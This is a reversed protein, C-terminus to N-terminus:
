HIMLRGPLVSFPSSSFIPATPVSGHLEVMEGTDFVDLGDLAVSQLRPATVVTRAHHAQQTGHHEQAVRRGSLFVSQSRAITLSREGSRGMRLLRQSPDSLLSGSARNVTRRDDLSRLSFFYPGHSRLCWNM